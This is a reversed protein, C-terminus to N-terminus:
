SPTRDVLPTRRSLDGTRGPEGFGSVYAVNGTGAVRDEEDRRKERGRVLGGEQILLPQSLFPEISRPSISPIPGAAL